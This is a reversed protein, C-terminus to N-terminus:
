SNQSKLENLKLQLDQAKANLVAAKDQFTHVTSMDISTNVNVGRSELQQELNNVKEQARVVSGYTGDGPAAFAASAFSTTALLTLAVKTLTNM